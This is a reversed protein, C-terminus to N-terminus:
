LEVMFEALLVAGYAIIVLMFSALTVGFILQMITM